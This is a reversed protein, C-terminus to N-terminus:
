DATTSPGIRSCALMLPDCPKRAVWEDCNKRWSGAVSRRKSWTSRCSFTNAPQRSDSVPTRDRLTFMERAITSERQLIERLRDLRQRRDSKTVETDHAVHRQMIFRVQNARQQFFGATGRPTRVRSQLRDLGEARAAGRRATDSRQWPRWRRKRVRHPCAVSANRWSCTPLRIDM